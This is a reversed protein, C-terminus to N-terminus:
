NRWPITGGQRSFAHASEVAWAEEGHKASKYNETVAAVTGATAM